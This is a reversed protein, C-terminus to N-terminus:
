KPSVVSAILENAQKLKMGPQAEEIRLVHRNGQSFGVLLSTVVVAYSLTLRHGLTM